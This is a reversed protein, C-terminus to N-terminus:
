QNREWVLMSRKGTMVDITRRLRAIVSEQVYPVGHKACIAKIRPQAKQYSLMSLDPFMHHEIQYNLWGHAFDNFDGGTKFNTSGIVARLYFEDSKPLTETEFRYIDEGVHNPVVIVFSHINTLIEALLMNMLVLKGATAGFAVAAIGPIIGFSFIAYPAMKSLCMAFPGWNGRYFGARFVSLLTAPKTTAEFDLIEYQRGKRIADEAKRAELEKLTNPAYYFFKWVCMISYINIEKLWIPTKSERLLSLNREVLDPDAAEGLRYHHLHNHEQDWAEPLMWDLWDRIRRVFGRAFTRRHFRGIVQGDKSMQKNYGGHCVHHGVMTWKAMIGTSIAIAALPNVLPNCVTAAVLGGYYLLNSWLIIKKLHKVDAEGQQAALEAGVKRVESAWAKLDFNERWKGTEEYVTQRCM